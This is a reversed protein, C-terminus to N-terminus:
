NLCEIVKLENCLYDNNESALLERRQRELPVLTKSNDDNIGIWDHSTIAKIRIVMGVKDIFKQYFELRKTEKCSAKKPDKRVSRDRFDIVSVAISGLIKQLFLDYNGECKRTMEILKKQDIVETRSNIIDLWKNVGEDAEISLEDYFNGKSGRNSLSLFMERDLSAIIEFVARAAKGKFETEYRLCDGRDYIRVYYDSYRSGFADTIKGDIPSVIREHNQFYFKNGQKTAEAMEKRPIMRYTPDDTRIDLRSAYCNYAHYLGTILRWTDIATKDRFYKGEFCVQVDVTGAKRNITFGGRVGENSTFTNNFWTSNKSLHFRKNKITYLADKKGICFRLFSDFKGLPLNRTRVTLGDVMISLPNRTTGVKLSKNSCTQKIKCSSSIFGKLKSKDKNHKLKLRAVKPLFLLGNKLNNAVM